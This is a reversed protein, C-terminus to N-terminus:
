FHIVLHYFFFSRRRVRQRLMTCYWCCNFHAGSPYIFKTVMTLAFMILDLIGAEASNWACRYRLRKKFARLAVIVFVFFSSFKRFFIFVFRCVAPVASPIRLDMTISFFTAVYYIRLFYILIPIVLFFHDFSHKRHFTLCACHVHLLIIAVSKEFSPFCYNILLFGKLSCEICHRLVNQNWDRYLLLQLFYPQNIAISLFKSKKMEMNKTHFVDAILSSFIVVLNLHLFLHSEIRVFYTQREM